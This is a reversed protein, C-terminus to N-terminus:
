SKERVIMSSNSRLQVLLDRFGKTNKTTKQKQQDKLQRTTELAVTSPILEVTM